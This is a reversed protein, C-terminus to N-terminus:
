ANTRPTARTRVDTLCATLVRQRFAANCLNVVSRNAECHKNTFHYGQDIIYSLTVSKIIQSPNIIIPFQITMVDDADCRLQM